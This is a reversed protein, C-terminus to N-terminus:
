NVVSRSALSYGILEPCADSFFRITPFHRGAARISCDIVKEGSPAVSLGNVALDNGIM